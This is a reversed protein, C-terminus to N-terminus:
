KDSFRRSLYVISKAFMQSIDLIPNLLPLLMLSIRIDINGFMEVRLVMSILVHRNESQQVGRLIRTFSFTELFTQNM